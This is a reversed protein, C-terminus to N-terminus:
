ARLTAGLEQKLKGLIRAKIREVEKDTLTREQAQFTLSYALSKKGPPIQEGRYLDFLWVQSLIRGGIEKIIKEVKAAPVEEDVVLAIDQTIAPVRPVPEYYRKEQALSILADLDFELLCVKQSPLDYNELVAPHAEGLIGIETQDVKLLATRRPHFTPHHAPEFSFAYLKLRELLKEAVGKLDFFDTERSTHNTDELWSSVTRPGTMAIALRRLEQPLEGEGQPLYVRGIEFISIRGTNKLNQALTELASALLTQRLYEHERSLPNALKIYSEEGVQDKEPYLKAISELSTLSYTIVETLGCGVLIDRVREEYHLPWNIRQPPLTDYLLTTPIQEYGIVRAVEEILDAEITVDLRYSPVTVLLGEGQRQCQFELSTLIKEIRKLPIEMGLIREVEQPALYIRKTEPKIPYCDAIGQAIVGGALERMLESARVLAPVTGEPDLNRGFRLAAESPLKLAQSTRRISFSNFNASELLVNRTEETVETDLGGMVGAVAVPGAGDTILLMDDDLAREQEDLLILREGPRARRVIIRKQAIQDCDFAHLPQGLELMVYNTIDVINNIPRQGSLLLRRQMWKPSPSVKVDRVLSASYRSCIDPDQIEVEIQGQISEGEAKMQPPRIHLRGGALAAVERAVGVISLARGMNSTVDLEIVTDGLYERLPAGVPADDELILIGTHDESLGLEKESCIMGESRVGRLRMPKLTFPHPERSHGDLLRAGVLALPVKQGKDGVKINPAGTIVTLPEEAGYGVVALTLRDAQPHPLVEQIQGVYIKDWEAGIEEVAAVELGAMTLRERLESLPLEIDVFEKLWSLPVRM